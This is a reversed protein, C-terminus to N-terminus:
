ELALPTGIPNPPPPRGIPNPHLPRLEDVIRRWRHRRFHRFPCVPEERLAFRPPPSDSWYALLGAVAFGAVLLSWDGLTSALLGVPQAAGSGSGPGFVYAAGGEVASEVLHDPQPRFAGGASLWTRDGKVAALAGKAKPAPTHNRRPRRSM